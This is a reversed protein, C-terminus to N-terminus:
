RPDRCYAKIIERSQLCTFGCEEAYLEAKKKSLMKGTKPDRMSCIVAVEHMGALKMVAISLETHGRREKLLGKSAIFLKLHGPIRVVEPFKSYKGSKVMDVLERILLLKDADSSGTKCGVHDLLLSFSGRKGKVMKKLVQFRRGAFRLIDTSFPLGFKEALPHSIVIGVDGSAYEKMKRITKSGIKEAAVVMSTEREEQEYILVIEGARLDSLAKELKKGAGM